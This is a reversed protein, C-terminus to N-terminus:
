RADDLAAGETLLRQITEADYGHEALIARPKKQRILPIRRRGMAAIWTRDAARAASTIAASSNWKPPNGIGHILAGV